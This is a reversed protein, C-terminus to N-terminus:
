RRSLAALFPSVCRLKFDPPIAVAVDEDPVARCILCVGDSQEQPSLVTDAVVQPYSVTGDILAAKCIGCGGRRCGANVAYGNRHLAALVAEGAQVQLQIDTDAITLRPM